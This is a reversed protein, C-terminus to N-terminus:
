TNGKKYDAVAKPNDALGKRVIARLDDESIDRIGLDAIAQEATSGTELMKLYVDRSRQNNLGKAKVQGILDALAPPKLPFEEITQKRENLSALVSNTVWNSATKNDGCPKAVNEYYAVTARGQGTLVMADYQSLGYQSQLRTRQASPLEGMD